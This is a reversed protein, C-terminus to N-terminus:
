SVRVERADKKPAKRKRNLRRRFEQVARSRKFGSYIANMQAPSVDVDFQAGLEAGPAESRSISVRERLSAPAVALAAQAATEVVRNQASDALNVGLSIQVMRPELDYLSKVAAYATDALGPTMLADGIRVPDNFRALPAGHEQKPLARAIITPGLGWLLRMEARATSTPTDVVITTKAPLFYCAIAILVAAAAAVLGWTMLDM